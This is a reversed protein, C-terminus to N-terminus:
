VKRFVPPKSKHKEAIWWKRFRLKAFQLICNTCYWEEKVWDGGEEAEMAFIMEIYGAMTFSAEKADPWGATYYRGLAALEVSNQPLNGELSVM